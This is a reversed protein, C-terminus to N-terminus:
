RDRFLAEFSFDSYGLGLMMGTTLASTAGADYVYTVDDYVYTVDDGLGLMMGTTLASTAGSWFWTNTYAQCWLPLFLSNAKVDFCIILMLM